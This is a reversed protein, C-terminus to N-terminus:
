DNEPNGSHMIRCGTLKDIGWFPIISLFFKEGGDIQKIIVKVRVKSGHSDMIAIFEYYTTSKLIKDWRNHIKIREFKQTKWMGQLTKSRNVVEPALRLHRFRVYQDKIPRTKNWEKFILHDLGKSNFNIHDGFYPCYIKGIKEYFDESEHKIKNFQEVTFKLM